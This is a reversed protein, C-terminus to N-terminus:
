QKYSDNESISRLNGTACKVGAIQSAECNETIEGTEPCDFITDESGLCDLNSLTFNKGSPAIGYLDHASSGVLAEFATTFNLM